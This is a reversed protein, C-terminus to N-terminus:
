VCVLLRSDAVVVEWPFEKTKQSPRTRNGAGYGGAIQSAKQRVDNASRLEGLLSTLKM